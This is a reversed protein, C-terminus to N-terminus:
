CQLQFLKDCTVIAFTMRKEAVNQMQACLKMLTSVCCKPRYKLTQKKKKDKPKNGILPRWLLYRCKKYCPMQKITPHEEQWWGKIRLSFQAVQRGCLPPSTGNLAKDLSVVLSSAPKKEVVEGLQWTGLLFATFVM